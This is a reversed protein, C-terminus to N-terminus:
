RFRYHFEFLMTGAGTANAIAHQYLSIVGSKPEAALGLREWLPLGFGSDFQTVPSHVNGASKLVSVLADVDDVTGVRIAAFGTNEVQLATGADLICAAPLDCLHYMSGSLDDAANTVTGAVVIPRGRARAPDIGQAGAGDSILDSQGNVIPM